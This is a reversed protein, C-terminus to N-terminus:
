TQSEHCDTQKLGLVGELNLRSSDGHDRGSLGQYPHNSGDVCLLLQFKLICSDLSLHYSMKSNPVSLSFLFGRVTGLNLDSVSRRIRSRITSNSYRKSPQLDKLLLLDSISRFCSSTRSPLHDRLVTHIWYIQLPCYVRSAPSNHNRYFWDGSQFCCM